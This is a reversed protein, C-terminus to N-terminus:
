AAALQRTALNSIHNILEPFHGDPTTGHTFHGANSVTIHEAIPFVERLEQGGMQIALSDNSSHFFTMKPVRDILDPDLHFGFLEREQESWNMGRSPAICILSDLEIQGNESLFRLVAAAGLSHALVIVKKNLNERRLALEYPAYGYPWPQVVDLTKTETGLQRLDAATIDFLDANPVRRGYADYLNLPIKGSVQVVRFPTNAAADIALDSATERM